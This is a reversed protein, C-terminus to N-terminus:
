DINEYKGELIKTIKEKEVFDTRILGYEHVISIYSLRKIKELKEMLMKIKEVCEKPDLNEPYYLHDCAGTPNRIKIDENCLVCLEKIENNKM